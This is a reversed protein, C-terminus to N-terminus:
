ARLCLLSCCFALCVLMMYLFGCVIANTIWQDVDDCLEENSNNDGNIAKSTGVTQWVCWFLAAIIYIAVGVDYCLVQKLRQYSNARSTEENINNSNSSTVRSGTEEVIPPSNVPRGDVTAQYQPRAFTDKAHQQEEEHQQQDQQIRYVIYFAGTIHIVALAANIWLWTDGDCRQQQSTSDVLSRIGWIAPPVNLALTTLLYPTFPSSFIWGMAACGHNCAAGCGKCAAGCAKCPLVCVEGCLKGIGQCLIAAM